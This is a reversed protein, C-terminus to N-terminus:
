GNPSDPAKRSHMGILTGLATVALMFAGLGASGFLDRVLDTGTRTEWSELRPAKTDFLEAVLAVEFCIVATTIGIATLWRFIRMSSMAM